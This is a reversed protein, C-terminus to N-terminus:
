VFILNSFNVFSKDRDSIIPNEIGWEMGFSNWLIGSDAGCNYEESQLYSVISDDDLTLFGHAVGTPIFVARRDNESVNCYDFKGYTSSDRRLDLFVDLVKGKPCYVLKAVGYPDSQYHMGRLVNKKSVSYFAEKFSPNIGIKQFLSQNFTKIFVGRCDASYNTEIVFCDNIKTKAFKM